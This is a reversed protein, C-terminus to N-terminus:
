KKKKKKKSGDPLYEDSSKLRGKDDYTKKSVLRGQDYESRELVVKKLGYYLQTGHPKGKDYNEERYPSGDEHFYSSKGQRERGNYTNARVFGERATVEGDDNFSEITIKDGAYIEERKKEGNQYYETSRTLAGSKYVKESQKDKTGKFYEVQSGNGGKVSDVSTVKGDEGTKVVKGEEGKDYTTTKVLKGDEYKKWVGHKKNNLYGGTEDVKGQTDYLKIQSPKGTRGCWENDQPLASDKGCTLDMIQGKDNYRIETTTSGAVDVFSVTELKGTEFHYKKQVGQPRDNVYNLEELLLFPAYEKYGKQFGHIKGDKYNLEVIPKGTKGDYEGIFGHREGNKLNFKKTVKGTKEDKCTMLGTFKDPTKDNLGLVKTGYTCGYNNYDPGGPPRFGALLVAAGLIM